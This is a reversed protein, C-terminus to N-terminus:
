DSPSCLELGYRHPRGIYLGARGEVGTGDGIASKRYWSLSRAFHGRREFSMGEVLRDQQDPHTWLGAGSGLSSPEGFHELAENQMSRYQGAHFSVLSSGTGMCSLEM